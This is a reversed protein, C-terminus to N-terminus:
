PGDQKGGQDTRELHLVNMTSIRQLRLLRFGSRAAYFDASNVQVYPVELFDKIRTCVEQRPLIKGGMASRAQIMAGTLFSVARRWPPFEWADHLGRLKTPLTGPSYVGLLLEGGPRLVGAIQDLIRHPQPLHHIVGVCLIRDFSGPRFPLRRIDGRVRHGSTIRSLVNRSIDFFIPPPRHDRLSTHLLSQGCGFDGIREGPSPDLLRHYATHSGQSPFILEEYFDAVARVIREEEASGDDKPDALPFLPM